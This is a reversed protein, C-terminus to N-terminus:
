RTENPTWWRPLYGQYAGTRHILEELVDTPIVTGLYLRPWHSWYEDEAWTVDVMYGDPDLLWAHCLLRAFPGLDPRWITSWWPKGGDSCTDMLALGEVYRLEPHALALRASNQFCNGPEGRPIGSPRPRWPMEVGNEQLWALRKTLRGSGPRSENM